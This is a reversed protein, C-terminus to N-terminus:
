LRMLIQLEESPVPGQSSGGSARGWPNRCTCLWTRASLASPLRPVLTVRESFWRPNRWTTRNFSGCVCAQWARSGAAAWRFGVLFPALALPPHFSDGPIFSGPSMTLQLAHQKFLDQLFLLFVPPPSSGNTASYCLLSFDSELKLEKFMSQARDCVCVCVCFINVTLWMCFAANQEHGPGPRCLSVRTFLAFHTNQFRKM